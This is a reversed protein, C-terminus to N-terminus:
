SGKQNQLFIRLEAPTDTNIFDVALESLVKWASPTDPTAWFRIPKQQQHALDIKEQLKKRDKSPLEGQGKWSTLSQFNYSVLGIKELIGEAEYGKDQVQLDVKVYTPVTLFYDLSPKNGSIVFQIHHQTILTEYQKLVALLLAMTQQADGKIDVLFQLKEPSGLGLDVAQQLPELYLREITRHVQADEVDHAVYIAQNFLVLDIEISAAGQSYANWFPVNRDYDNHSHLGVTKNQAYGVACCCLWFWVFNMKKM